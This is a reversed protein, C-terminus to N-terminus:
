GLYGALSVCHINGRQVHSTFRVNCVFVVEVQKGVFTSCKRDKYCMWWQMEDEFLFQEAVGGVM